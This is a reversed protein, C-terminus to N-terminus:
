VNWVLCEKTADGGIKYNAKNHNTIVKFKYMKVWAAISWTNNTRSHAQRNQWFWSHEAGKSSATSNCPQSTECVGAFKQM